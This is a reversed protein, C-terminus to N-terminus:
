VAEGVKKMTRHVKKMDKQAIHNKESMYDMSGNGAQHLAEDRHAWDKRMANSTVHGIGFDPMNAGHSMATEKVGRDSSIGANPALHFADSDPYKKHKAMYREKSIQKM